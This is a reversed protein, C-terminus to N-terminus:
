GGGTLAGSPIGGVARVKLNFGSHSTANFPVSLAAYGEAVLMTSM